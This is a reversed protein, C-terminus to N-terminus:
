FAGIIVGAIVMGCIHYLSNIITLGKPRNEFSDNVLIAMFAFCIGVFLGIKIGDAIEGGNTWYMIRAIGYSSVFATVIGIVYNLPSHDAMAQEKTRGTGKLWANGFLVPLFWLAGLGMYAVAAVSIALYNMSIPEM